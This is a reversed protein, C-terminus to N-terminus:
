AAAGSETACTAAKGSPGQGNSGAGTRAAKGSPGQGNSGAGTRAAKGSPGQGNSGAGTQAAKGPGQGNSGGGTRAAKGPGQGDSGGGTQAAKTEGCDSTRCADSWVLRPPRGRPRTCFRRVFRFGAYAARRDPPGLRRALGSPCPALNCDRRAAADGNRNTCGRKDERELTVWHVPTKALECRVGLVWGCRSRKLRGPGCSEGSVSKTAAGSLFRSRLSRWSRWPGSQGSEARRSRSRWSRAVLSASSRAKTTTMPVPSIWRSGVVLVTS